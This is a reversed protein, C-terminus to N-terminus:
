QGLGENVARLSLAGLNFLSLYADRWAPVLYTFEAIKVRLRRKLTTREIPSLKSLIGRRQGCDVMRTLLQKHDQSSRFKEFYRAIQERLAPNVAYPRLLVGQRIEWAAILRGELTLLSEQLEDISLTVSGFVSM